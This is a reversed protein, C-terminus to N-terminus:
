PKTGIIEPNFNSVPNSSPFPTRYIQEFTQSAVKLREKLSNITEIGLAPLLQETYRISSSETLYRPVQHMYIKSWPIWYKSNHFRCVSALFLFYDADMFKQMPIIEKLSGKSSHRDNLIDSHISRRKSDLRLNRDDLTKLPSMSIYTFPVLGPQNRYQINSVYIEKSLLDAIIQWRDESILFSFFIVFLEHGIFKYLDFDTDRYSRMNPTFNYLELIVEFEKYLKNAAVINKNIAITKAIHAFELTLEQTQEISRVLLDDPYTNTPPSITDANITVLKEKLQIMYEHILSEQNQISKECALRVQESIRLEQLTTNQTTNLNEIIIRLANELKRKLEKRETARDESEKPSNYAMVRRNKLDFPLEEPNGFATNIVMIINEWGLTKVAYGLEILVNPNPTKKVPNQTTIFNIISIDCVFINAKEIKEFITHAIAPSGPVGATDRDIVPEVTISNDNRILKVSEELATEIFSRNTSNPLDSQWSYFIKCQM